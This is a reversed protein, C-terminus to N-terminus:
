KPGRFIRVEAPAWDPVAGFTTLADFRDIGTAVVLNKGDATFALHTVDRAFGDLALIERRSAVDWVKVARDSGGTVLRGDPGFAVAGVPRTHAPM